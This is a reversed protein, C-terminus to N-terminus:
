NETDVYGYLVYQEDGIPVSRLVGSYSTYTVWTYGDKKYLGDYYVELGPYYAYGSEPSSLGDTGSRIVVDNATFVFTGSEPVSSVPVGTKGAVVTNSPEITNTVEFVYQGNADQVLRGTFYANKGIASAQAGELIIGQGSTQGQPYLIVKGDQSVTNGSLTIYQNAYGSSNNIIDQISVIRQGATPSTTASTKPANSTSTQNSKIQNNSSTNTQSSSSTSNDTSKQAESEEKDKSTQSSAESAASTLEEDQEVVVITLPNGEVGDKQIMIKYSGPKDASFKAGNEYAVITGGSASFDGDVWDLPSDSKAEIIVEENVLISSSQPVLEVLILKKSTSTQSASSTTSSNTASSTKQSQSSSKSTNQSQSSSKNSNNSCGALLLLASLACSLQKKNM